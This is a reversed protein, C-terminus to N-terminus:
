LFKSHSEDANQCLNLDFMKLRINPNVIFEQAKQFVKSVKVSKFYSLIKGKYPTFLSLKSRLM